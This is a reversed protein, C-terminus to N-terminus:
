IEQGDLYVKITTFKGGANKQIEFNHTNDSLSQNKAYHEADQKDDFKVFGIIKNMGAKIKCVRFNSM